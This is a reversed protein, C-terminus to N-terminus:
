KLVIRTTSEIHKATSKEKATIHLFYIGRELDSVNMGYIGAEPKLVSIVSGATNTLEATIHSLNGTKIYVYKEAPNPYVQILEATVSKEDIGTAQVIYTATATASPIWNTECSIAKYTYTGTTAATTLPLPSTGSLAGGCLPESGDLTYYITSGPKATITFNIENVSTAATPSFVPANLKGTLRVAWADSLGHNEPVNDDKSFTYGAAFYGGDATQQVSYLEEEGFGGVNQQWEVAGTSDTKVVWGDSGATGMGGVAVLSGSFVYGLDSTQEICRAFDMYVDGYCTQWSINGASTLKAVWLDSSGHNGSVDGNNSFTFGLSIFGGDATQKVSCGGDEADGGLCKQWVLNGAADLRVLWLDYAGHNGTVDGDASGSEGTIMYGGDSIQSISYGYDDSSGGLCKQWEMNGLADLKVVWYDYGGHNGTVDGNTSNSIGLVVYGGDMTQKVSYAIDMDTGGFCKQWLLNGSTDIKVVWADYAGHNGTVDGNNSNTLGALIFNGDATQQVSWGNDMGDGGLCKQWVLDGEANLKEVWFDSGGHFGTVNGDGSHTIGCLIYGSDATLNGSYAYDLNSGGLGRQWIINQAHLVPNLFFLFTSIVFLANRLHKM